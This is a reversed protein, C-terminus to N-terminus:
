DKDKMLYGMVIVGASIIVPTLGEPIIIGYYSLVGTIGTVLGVVTTKLDTKM